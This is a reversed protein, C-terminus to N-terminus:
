PFHRLVAFSYGALEVQLKGISSGAGDAANTIGGTDAVFEKGTFMDEWRGAEADLLLSRPAADNNLVVLLTERDDSREYAVARDGPQAWVFKLRGTRLATYCKRMRILVQYFRFLDRDQESEEWVMCKRCGPDNDGTMGIEDGYYICPTGPYTHQILAALKMKRKDEGCQTLLRATDHSDLLNFAVEVAQRSHSALLGGIADAFGQSDLTGRAIFDLVANTFPYNMVADFQDGQLWAQSDHWIEGLIYADPNASKVVQRFERWFQHDVENAVDLRWGDIGVEEIWYRAVQLLYQKVEPNETNLKPMEPVFAFVDYTPVRDKVQLPFERVHFWDAYPSAAGKELVDVFQPMTRGAHNFVADLMVRIGRKHAEAVLEKLTENTGFHPDVKMYNHTDYKHNTPAEFVPTFYIANIGLESLYDLHDIVGQLDGGFFNNWEPKGGWPLAGEPNNSPDGDAFREPFIQYFVADKVWQPPQFVDVANIFPFEFHGPQRLETPNATHIGQESLWLEDEESQLHFYYALRRFPPRILTEWYDFLSDSAFKEMGTTTVMQDWAYKDSWIVDVQQVDNKKTRIRLCVTQPDAAFSWNLKPRHYIAEKMIM